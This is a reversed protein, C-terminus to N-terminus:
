MTYLMQELRNQVDVQKTPWTRRSKTGGPTEFQLSCCRWSSEIDPHDVDCIHDVGLKNFSRAPRALLSYGDSITLFGGSLSRELFLDLLLVRSIVRIWHRRSTSTPPLSLPLGEDWRFCRVSGSHAAQALLQKASLQNLIPPTETEIGCV